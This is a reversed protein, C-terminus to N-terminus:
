YIPRGKEDPIGSKRYFYSNVQDRWERANDLQLRFRGSINEFSDEPIRGKLGEFAKAMGEAEEYGEFHSDYIYQILSQGSSLKWTYPIHHFFLLLNEPCRAPDEYQEANEPYYQQAYGTGHSSRDVGIGLHDARHYTGWRSYEYGDVSCGYHFGPTVMWGIGLPSTYKEYTARSGMLIRVIVDIAEKDTDFTLQAWERAIEESSLETDFSLRGFGYLNAAALDNGTWNADNGTNAVAAMGAMGSKQNGFTRGSVIDKVQDGAGEKQRDNEEPHNTCYTHYELVEKFMPMLYCVDIQHGTYEQAIQVELMQNTKRLGGMLPHIPERIQFDMPGNKIQLIVNDHYDGDMAKFNDYGSRARDTKYDRWDQTCNYVFCRWIITGGYPKVLDALMNAGDAQTRGYTFPGPRGESDAKVLFGGFNPIRGFVEAIKGKWWAIVEENLPDCNDLGGIEIPSAFNLSLYLSVGYAAFIESMAALKDFYRDTILDTADGKVNVNNIVVANIGVSSVLRAYDKTREDVIVTGDKFFFSDGSYGREIDNTMNDWHNLMRLPNSPVTETEAEQLAKGTGIARLLAFTGYLASKEGAAEIRIEEPTVLIRYSETKQNESLEEEAKASAVADVRRIRICAGEAQDAFVPETGLMGKLGRAAEEKLSNIVPTNVFGDLVVTGAYAGFGQDAVPHYQLWLQKWESMVYEERKDLRMQMRAKHGKWACKKGESEEPAGDQQM